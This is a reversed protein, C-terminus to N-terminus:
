NTKIRKSENYFEKEAKSLEKFKYSPISGYQWENTYYPEQKGTIEIREIIYKFKKKNFSYNNSLVTYSINWMEALEPITYGLMLQETIFDDELLM